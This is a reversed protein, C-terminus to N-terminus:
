QDSERYTLMYVKIRQFYRMVGKAVKWIISSLYRGLLGVIHAVDLHTCIQIYILSEIVVYKFKRGSFKHYMCDDVVNM